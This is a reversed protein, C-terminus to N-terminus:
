KRYLTAAVVPPKDGSVSAVGAIESIDVVVPIGVVVICGVRPDARGDSELFHRIGPLQQPTLISYTKESLFRTGRKLNEHFSFIVKGRSAPLYIGQRPQASAEQM